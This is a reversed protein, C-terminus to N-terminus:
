GGSRRSWKWWQGCREGRYYRKGGAAGCFAACFTACFAACFRFRPSLGIGVSDVRAEEVQDKSSFRAVGLLAASVYGADDGVEQAHVDAGNGYYGRLSEVEPRPATRQAKAIIRRPM